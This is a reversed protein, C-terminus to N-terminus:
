RDGSEKRQKKKQTHKNLRETKKKNKEDEIQSIKLDFKYFSKEKIIAGFKPENLIHM